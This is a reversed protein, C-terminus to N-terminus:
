TAFKHFGHLKEELMKESQRSTKGIKGCLLASVSNFHLEGQSCLKIASPPQYIASAINQKQPSIFTTKGREATCYIRAIFPMKKKCRREICKVARVSYIM